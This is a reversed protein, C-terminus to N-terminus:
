YLKIKYYEDNYKLLPLQTGYSWDLIGMSDLKWLEINKISVTDSIQPLQKICLEARCRTRVHTFHQPNVCKPNKCLRFVKKYKTGMKRSYLYLPISRTEAYNAMIETFAPNAINGKRIMCGNDLKVINNKLWINLEKKKNIKNEIRFHKPNVCLKNGCMPIIYVGESIEKNLMRKCLIRKLSRPEKYQQQLCTPLNYTRRSYLICGTNKDITTFKELYEDLTINWKKKNQKIVRNNYINVM